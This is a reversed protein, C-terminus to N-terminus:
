EDGIIKFDRPAGLAPVSPPVVREAYNPPFGYPSQMPMQPPSMIIIPPQPMFRQSAYDYSVERPADNRGWHNGSAIVLGISVPISASIGCVAGVVVAMAENSLRSGVIYALAVAFAIGALILGNKM